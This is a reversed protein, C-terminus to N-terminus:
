RAKRRTTNRVVLSPYFMIKDKVKKKENIDSILCSVAAKGMEDLPQRVTTLPIYQYNNDRPKDDDYGMIMVDDPIRIGHEQLAKMGGFATQDSGFYFADPLGERGKKGLFERVTRYGQEETWGSELVIIDRPSMHHSKMAEVYGEQRRVSAQRDADGGVHFIKRCGCEFLYDVALKSGYKNNLLINNANLDGVDNEILAFPFGSNILKEIFSIDELNSGYIVIGDVREQMFFNIYKNKKEASNSGSCFLVNYGNRDVEAEIGKVLNFFYADCLTDIVVGITNTKQLVLSRALRNPTYGLEDIAEQIRQRSKESVGYQNNIVRSVLTASCGAKRAVDHISVM